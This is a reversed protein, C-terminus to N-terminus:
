LNLTNLNILLINKLRLILKCGDQLSGYRGGFHAKLEDVENLIQRRVIDPEDTLFTSRFVQDIQRKENKIKRWAQWARSFKREVLAVKIGNERQKTYM